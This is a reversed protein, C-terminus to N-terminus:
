RLRINILTKVVSRLKGRFGTWTGMKGISPGNKIIIGEVGLDELHDREGQNEWWFYSLAVERGM